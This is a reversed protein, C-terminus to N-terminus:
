NVMRRINLYQNYNKAPKKGNKEIKKKLKKMWVNEPNSTNAVLLM